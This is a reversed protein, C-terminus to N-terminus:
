EYRMEKREATSEHNLKNSKSEGSLKLIILPHHSSEQNIQDDFLASNPISQLLELDKSHSAVELILINAM